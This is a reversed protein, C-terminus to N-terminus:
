YGWAGKNQMRRIELIQGIHIFLHSFHSIFVKLYNKNTMHTPLNETTPPITELWENSQSSITEVIQTNVTKLLDLLSPITYNEPFNGSSSIGFEERFEETTFTEHDLLLHNIIYDHVCVIHGLIWGIAPSNQDSRWRVNEITLDSCYQRCQNELAYALYKTMILGTM